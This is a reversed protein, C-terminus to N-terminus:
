KLWLGLLLVGVCILAVLALMGLIASTQDREPLVFSEARLLLGFGSEYHAGSVAHQRRAINGASSATRTSLPHGVRARNDQGNDGASLNVWTPNGDRKQV